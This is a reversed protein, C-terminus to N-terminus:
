TTQKGTKRKRDFVRRLYEAYDGGENWARLATM